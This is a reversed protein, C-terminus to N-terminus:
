ADRAHAGRQFIMFMVTVVVTVFVPFLLTLLWQRVYPDGVGVAGMARFLRAFWNSGDLLSSSALRVGAGFLPLAVSLTLQAVSDSWLRTILFGLFFPVAAIACFEPLGSITYPLCGTAGALLMVIPWRLQLAKM